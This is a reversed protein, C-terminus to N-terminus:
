NVGMWHLVEIKQLSLEVENGLDALTHQHDIAAYRADGRANTLYQPHDDDGLGTLAGHDTVGGSGGSGLTGIPSGWEGSVSSGKQYYENTSTNIYIDGDVGLTNSPAFAGTYIMSGNTGDIGDTGDTGDLGPDGKIGPDGQSGMTGTLSVVVLNSGDDETKITSTGGTRDLRIRIKDGANANYSIMSAATGKGENKTRHYIFAESGWVTTWGAGTDEELVMHSESRSTGSTISATVRALVLYPGATLFELEGGANAFNANPYRPGDFNLTIPTATIQQGGYWDALEYYDLPVPGSVGGANSITVDGTGPDAGTWSLSIGTGALVKSIVAQGSTQTDLDDRAVSQDRVEATGITTRAM